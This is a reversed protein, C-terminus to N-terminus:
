VEEYRIQKKHDIAFIHRQRMRFYTFGEFTMKTNAFRQFFVYMGTQLFEKDGNLASGCHRVWGRLYKETPMQKTVLWHEKPKYITKGHEDVLLQGNITEPTPISIDDWTELDPEVMVYSGIMIIEKKYVQDVGHRDTYYFRKNLHPKLEPERTWDWLNTVKNLPTMRISAFVLDYKIKFYHFITNDEKMSYMYLKNWKQDAQDPLLCNYHFYVKDGECIELKIDETTKWTWEPKDHYAPRSATESILPYKNLEDPVSVVIGHNRVHQEPNYYVNMMIAKGDVGKFASDENFISPVKVIIHERIIKM